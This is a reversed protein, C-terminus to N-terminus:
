DSTCTQIAPLRQIPPRQHLVRIQQCLITTVPEPNTAAPLQQHLFHDSSSSQYRSSCFPSRQQLFTTAAAPSTAAPASSTAAPAPLHDSSYSPPCQLLAPLQQHLVPLQQHLFTTAAAPSTAAQFPTQKTKTQNILLRNVVVCVCM